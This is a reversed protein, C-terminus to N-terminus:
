RETSSAGGAPATQFLSIVFGFAAGCLAPIVWGMMLSYFPIYQSLINNLVTVHVGAANLGDILSFALTFDLAGQYISKRWGIFRDFLSLLVFVIVLPYITVLFPVALAIIQTLGINSAAFSFLTFLLLLREYSIRNKLLKNFFWAGGSLMGCSTTLCALIIIAALLGNGAPGFFIGVASALLQGGNASHGLVSASTAGLYALSGYVCAMLTVTILGAFLCIRGIARNDTVGRMRVANVVLTGIAISALLDMTQYGDQFGQAFPSAVYNGTAPLIDGLPAAFSKAFLVALVILLLPTLVKGVRDILKNPNLSLYYSAGFFLATYVAQGITLGDDGLFPRIGIEFSVAGTRPVAFVPGICLYLVVLLATAFWLYTRRNILEIYKGGQLAIATIGLLPLGVGTLLFGAMATLTHDGAAQGLAPPFIVNGAGFFISFMMFGITLLEGIKFQNM